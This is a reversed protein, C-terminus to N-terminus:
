NLSCYPDSAGVADRKPLDKACLLEFTLGGQLLKSPQEQVHLMGILETSLLEVM